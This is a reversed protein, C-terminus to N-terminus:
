RWSLSNKMGIMWRGSIQTDKLSQSYNEMLIKIGDTAVKMDLGTFRFVDKEVKSVTLEEVMSIVKEVFVHTGALNFDDVHTTVAGHLNGDLNLYYFAEDGDITRFGLKNLFVDKVRLWFKRSADM